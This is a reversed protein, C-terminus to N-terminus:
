KEKTFNKSLQNTYNKQQYKIVFINLVVVPLKKEFFNYVMSALGHQCGYYKPDKAIDFSKDRLVKDAVTRRNLYKSDGYAM